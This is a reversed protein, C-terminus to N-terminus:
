FYPNGCQLGGRSFWLWYIGQEPTHKEFAERVTESNFLQPCHNYVLLQWVEYVKSCVYLKVLFSELAGWCWDIFGEYYLASGVLLPLFVLSILYLLFYLKFSGLNFRQFFFRTLKVFRQCCWGLILSICILLIGFLLRKIYKQFFKFVKIQVFPFLFIPCFIAVWYMYTIIM